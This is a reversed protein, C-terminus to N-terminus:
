LALRYHYPFLSHLATARNELEIRRELEARAIRAHLQPDPLRSLRRSSRQRPRPPPAEDSYDSDTTVSTSEDDDEEDVESSKSPPSAQQRLKKEQEEIRAVRQEHALRKVEKERDALARLEKKKALAMARASQLKILQAETLRRKGKYSPLPKMAEGGEDSPAESTTALEVPVAEISPAAADVASSPQEPLKKKPLMESARAPPVM